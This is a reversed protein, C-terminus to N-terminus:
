LEERIAELTVLTSHLWLKDMVNSIATAGESFTAVAMSSAADIRSKGVSTKPAKRGYLESM